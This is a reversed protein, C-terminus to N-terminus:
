GGWVESYVRLLNSSMIKEIADDSFSRRSLALQLRGIDAMSECGETARDEYTFWSGLIGTVTPWVPKPGYLDLWQQRTKTGESLDSGFAVHEIGVLNVMHEVHAAFDEVGPRDEIKLLPPWLTIGVTGGTVAAAQALDDPINRPSDCLARANSHSFIVPRKSATIVDRATPYSSHSVDILMRLENMLTVWQRGADTLGGPDQVLAGSGFRNQENYVPQMVRVGLRQLARLLEVDHDIFASDQTGLIISLLGKDVAARIGEVSTVIRALDSNDAVAKLSASIWGLTGAMDDGPMASTLNAARVGGALTRQMQERTMVACYLGDVIPHNWTTM